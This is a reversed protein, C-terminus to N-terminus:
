PLRWLSDSTHFHPDPLVNYPAGPGDGTHRRGYGPNHAIIGGFLTPILAVFASHQNDIGDPQGDPKELCTLVESTSM